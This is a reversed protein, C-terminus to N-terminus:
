KAPLSYALDYFHEKGKIDIALTGTIGALEATGSDPAIIIDLRMGDAKTVFGRHLMLFSGKRGDLEGEFKELAVYANAVTDGIMTAKSTGVLGGGFVKSLSFRTESEPKVAVEFKGKAHHIARPVDVRTEGTGRPTAVVASSILGFWAGIGLAFPLFCWKRNM